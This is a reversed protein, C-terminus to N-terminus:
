STCTVRTRRTSPSASRTDGQHVELKDNRRHSINMIGIWVRQEGLELEVSLPYVLRKGPSRDRLRTLRAALSVTALGISTKLRRWPSARRPPDDSEPEPDLMSDYLLRIALRSARPSLDVSADEEDIWQVTVGTVTSGILSSWRSAESVDWVGGEEEDPRWGGGEDIQLAYTYFSDGWTFGVVRGGDGVLDVGYDLTDVEPHEAWVGEDGISVYMVSALRLGVLSQAHEDFARRRADLTPAIPESDATV